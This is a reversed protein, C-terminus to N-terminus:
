LGFWLSEFCAHSLPVQHGQPYLMCSKLELNLKPGLNPISILINTQKNTQKFSRVTVM